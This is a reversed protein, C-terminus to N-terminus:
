FIRLNVYRKPRERIDAALARMERLTEAMDLYLTSDNVLRGLTGQGGDVKGLVSEMTTLSRELAGAAASFSRASTQFEGLTGALTPGADAGELAEASRRLASATLHLEAFAARLQEAGAPLVAATAHMDAVARPSLLSDANALVGRVTGGLNTFMEPLAEIAAGAIRDGRDLYVLASGPLLEVTNAGFVDSRVLARTDAPIRLEDDLNLEVTVGGGPELAVSRVSGVTVGRLQVRDGRKLGAGNEMVMAVRLGGGLVPDGLMFFYGWLFLCSTVLTLLGLATVNRRRTAM